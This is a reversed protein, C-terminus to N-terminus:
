YKEKTKTKSKVEENSKSILKECKKTKTKMLLTAVKENVLIKTKTLQFSM